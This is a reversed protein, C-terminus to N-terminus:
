SSRIRRPELDLERVYDSVNELGVLTLLLDGIPQYSMQKLPRSMVHANAYAQAEAYKGAFILRRVEPLAEKAEPNVPNYPGGSFFTDENLQLRELAMGGFIMAGIRGNGVPLAQVWEDAPQRYWLSLPKPVFRDSSAADLLSSHSSLALAATGALLERRNIPISDNMM